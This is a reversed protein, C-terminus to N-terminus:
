RANPRIVDTSCYPQLVTPVIVTGDAQQFQELIAVITRGVAFATGNLMHAYGSKGGKAYRVNLARSQYDTTTSVSGMERYTNQGPLWAELDYTRASPHGLEASCLQVVRYACGLGQWLKEACALLAAHEQDSADPATISFMELKDFQHVRLIGKTDKGYSGAERRFCTSFSLYRRPLSKEELVEDRHMPGISQESTGVLFLGDDPLRYTESEGGGALYGMAEMNERKIMVPPVIFTFGDKQLVSRAYHVLAFELEAAAGILYGFRSGSVTAARSIDIIGLKEGLSLYEKPLFDYDTKAGVERLVVNGREDKGTPVDEKLLNPVEVIGKRIAADLARVEKRRESVASSLKKLEVLMKVKEDGKRSPVERSRRNLEAQSDELVSVLKKREEAQGRLQQVMNKASAAEMGRKVASDEYIKPNELLHKLDVM